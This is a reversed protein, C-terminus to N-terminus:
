KHDQTKVPSPPSTNMERRSTNVMVLDHAAPFELTREREDNCIGYEHSGHCNGEDVHGNLDAGLSLSEDKSVTIWSTFCLCGDVLSMAKSGEYIKASM